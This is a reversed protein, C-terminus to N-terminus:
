ALRLLKRTLWELSLLGVVALLVWSMTIPQYPPDRNWIVFGGDWLDQIPGRNRLTQVDPRMCTPILHANKLDFYLRLKEEKGEGAPAPAAAAEMKPRQLSHRLQQREADGMRGLVDDAESALQYMTEFDPKTNDMEPNAEKVSFRQTLSDKTEPVTVTLAYDGAASVQFRGSFWGDSNPKAKMEFPKPVVSDPVGPPPSLKVIPAKATPALPEGEKGDFKGEFEIPKNSVHTAGIYLRIHKSVRSMNNSAAYRLLKMWFREHYPVSYSRLRWTEGSGLWIVRRNSSPSTMVIYPQQEMKGDKGRIQAKPDAFRAVVVSTTKVKEVPYFGYFGNQPEGGKAKGDKGWFFADWDSLFKGAEEGEELKLFEMDPTAGTFNLPFPETGTRDIDLNRIDSLVVPYLDLIPGLKQQRSKHPALRVTNIPGGLAILGGGKEVWRGVMKLQNQSLEEWDPDFAVIVDYQDLAYLKDEKDGAELRTPFSGLLREAPVDQVVGGRRETVGPPLQLYISLEARKKDMERFLISRLFQYDRIGASSAFLLVRLPRNVIRLVSPESVHFPAAFAEQSDRPVRVRFRLEGEGTESLEWKKGAAEGSELDVHAARALSQADIPFEVTVRPPSKSDFQVPGSPELTLKKTGLSLKARKEDPSSKNVKETLTLDLDVDKGTKDKVTHTIDLFVKVPKDPLGEGQVEVVARFKDEPQVQEPVRVDLIDIKVQPREQGVGVVFIPIHASKARAEIDAFAHSSGETSRGDTVIVIGQVRGNLERNVLSLTASGLNTGSFFGAESLKQTMEELKQMRTREAESAEPPLEVKAGPNLWAQVFEVPMPKAEPPEANRDANRTFEEWESRTWNRGDKFLLYNEDLRSAFRFVTLPNKAELDTFFKNNDRTVFEMVKDQRTLLKEGGRGTPIDDIVKTLSPSVDLLVLVKGMVRTEEWTQRARLMFVFALLLYVSTRLLGLFTAWWPGVSRSDKVYMWVIYVFGALLVAGLVFWWIWGPFEHGLFQLPESTRRWVYEQYTSTTNAENM